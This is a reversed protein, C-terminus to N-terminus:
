SHFKLLVPRRLPFSDQLQNIRNTVMAVSIDECTFSLFLIKVVRSAHLYSKIILLHFGPIENADIYNVIYLLDFVFLIVVSICFLFCLFSFEM